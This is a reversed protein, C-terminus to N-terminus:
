QKAASDEVVTLKKNVRSARQTIGYYDKTAEFVEPAPEAMSIEVLVFEEHVDAWPGTYDVRTLEPNGTFAYLPIIGCILSSVMPTVDDGEQMWGVITLRDVNFDYDIIKTFDDDFVSEVWMGWAYLPYPQATFIKKKNKNKSMNRNENSRAASAVRIKKINVM